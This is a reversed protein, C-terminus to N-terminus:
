LVVNTEPLRLGTPQRRTIFSLLFTLVGVRGVLMAVILVLKASDGLQPTLARSLGVTGVASVAEFVLDEPPLEPHLTCLVVAVTTIFGVAVLLTALARNALEDSLRRGFAEIDRRGLLVRRLSLFALALTSTKIGGATSSPSGGVFMLFMMLAASAPLLSEVPTVNFGATRATVSHFLATFWTSQAAVAGAQRGFAFETLWLALTGGALLATTTVLVIRSNATLRPPTALRLGLRRRVAGSAFEWFNKIVPFGLGGLVILLMIVSLFGREGQVRADALGSSLTSFGANCFASVSHFLAFFPLNDPAHATGSLAAHILVAGTLEVGLTFVIIVALVTSVHSLNEESLLDQLGIRNRLSVGGATFYAFSYTLTMIGLGGVQILGLLVWLGHQTFVASIDVPSLGTVCVASTAVFLADIWSIGHQTAHPTKLLLTGVLILLAFSLTFVMGPSYSRGNLWRNDRMARLALSTLFTLQAGGLYLLTITAAALDSGLRHLWLVIADGWIIELASVSALIVEVRRARLLALRRRVILFRLAEQLVFLGLISRTALWVLERREDTLPFGLVLCFMGLTLGGGLVLAIDLVRKLRPHTIEYDHAPM